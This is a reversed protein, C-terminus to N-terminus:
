KGDVQLQSISNIQILAKPDSLGTLHVFLQNLEEWGPRRNGLRVLTNSARIDTIQTQRNSQGGGGTLVTRPPPPPPTLDRDCDFCAALCVHAHQMMTRYVRSRPGNIESIIDDFDPVIFGVGM